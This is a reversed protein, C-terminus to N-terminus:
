PIRLPTNRHNLTNLPLRRCENTHRNNLWCNDCHRTGAHTVTPPQTNRHNFTNLTPQKMNDNPRKSPEHSDNPYGHAEYFDNAAKTMEKLSLTGKETLYTQLQRDCTIFFQDRIILSRLGDFDVDYGAMECWKNLYRNLREVFQEPTEGVELKSM